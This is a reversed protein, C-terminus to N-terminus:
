VGVPGGRQPSGGRGGNRLHVRAQHGPTQRDPELRAVGGPDAGVTPGGAGESPPQSTIAGQCPSSVTVLHIEGHRRLERDGVDRVDRPLATLFGEFACAPLLEPYRQHLCRVRHEMVRRAVPDIEVYLLEGISVGARLLGELEAGIGAFLCLVTLPQSAFRTMAPLQGPGVGAWAQEWAAEMRRLQDELSRRREQAEPMGAMYAGPLNGWPEELPPDYEGDSEREEESSQGAPLTEDQDPPPPPLQRQLQGMLRLANGWQPWERQLEREM